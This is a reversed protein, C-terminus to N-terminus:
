RKLKNGIARKLRNAFYDLKHLGDAIVPALSVFKFNRVNEPCIAYAAPLSVMTLVAILGFCKAFSGVFTAIGALIIAASLTMQMLVMWIVAIIVRWPLINEIGRRMEEGEDEYLRRPLLRPSISATSATSAISETSAFSATMRPTENNEESERAPRPRPVPIPSLSVSNPTQSM